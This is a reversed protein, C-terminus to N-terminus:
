DGSCGVFCYEAPRGAEYVPFYVAQWRELRETFSWDGAELEARTSKSSGFAAQLTKKPVPTATGYERRKAVRTIDLVSHTGDEGARDLLDDITAPATGPRRLWPVRAGAAQLARARNLERREEPTLAADSGSEVADFLHECLRLQSMLRKNNRAGPNFRLFLELNKRIDGGPKRYNGAAFTERRLRQLAAEPNPDYPAYCTWTTAGM